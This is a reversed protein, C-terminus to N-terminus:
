HLVTMRPLQKSARVALRMPTLFGAVTRLARRSTTFGQGRRRVDHDLRVHRAGSASHAESGHGRAPFFSDCYNLRTVDRPLSVEVDHVVDVQEDEVVVHLEGLLVPATPIAHFRM